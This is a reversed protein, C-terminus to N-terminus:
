RGLGSGKFGLYLKIDPYYYNSRSRKKIQIYGSTELQKTIRSLNPQQINLVKVLDQQIIGPHDLIAKFVTFQSKVRKLSEMKAQGADYFFFRAHDATITKVLPENYYKILLQYVINLIERFSGNSLDYILKLLDRELPLEGKMNAKKIRLRFAAIIEKFPLPEVVAVHQILQGVRPVNTKLFPGLNANGCIIWSFFPNQLTDRIENFFRMLDEEKFGYGMDLNDLQIIIPAEKRYNEKLLRGIRFMYDLLLSQNILAARSLSEGKSIGFGAGSIGLNILKVDSFVTHIEKVIKYKKLARHPSEKRMIEKVIAALIIAMFVDNDWHSKCPIELLPTFFGKKSHRVVNGLSTKGVGIEGELIVVAKNSLLDSLFKIKESHGVFQNLNDRGIPYNDCINNPIGWKTFM